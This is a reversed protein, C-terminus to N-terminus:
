KRSGAPLESSIASGLNHNSSAAPFRVDQVEARYFPFYDETGYFNGGEVRTPIHFGGFERFRSLDGGFPQLRYSKGPNADSWRSLSVSLPQGDAALRIEVSQTLGHRTMEVRTTDADVATWRIDDAPLLAAPCWFVAEALFRGFSSRLHDSDGGARGVPVLGFLRFRSWSRAGVAADTGSIAGARVQWVLGESALVQRAQMPRYGPANRSGVGLEGAMLIESVTWLPADPAIMFSFYRRAPEPLNAVMAPDFRPPDASQSARLRRIARADARHDALRLAVLGVLVAAFGGLITLLIPM